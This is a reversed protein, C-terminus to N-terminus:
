IMQSYSAPLSATHWSAIVQLQARQETNDNFEYFGVSFFLVLM